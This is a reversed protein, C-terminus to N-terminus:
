RPRVTVRVEDRIGMNTSSIGGASSSPITYTDITYPVATCRQAQPQPSFTTVGNLGM